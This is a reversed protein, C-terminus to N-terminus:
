SVLIYVVMGFLCDALKVLIDQCINFEQMWCISYGIMEEWTLKILSDSMDIDIWNRILFINTKKDCSNWSLILISKALTYFSLIVTSNYCMNDSKESSLPESMVAAGGGDAGGNNGAAGGVDLLRLLCGRTVVTWTSSWTSVWDPGLTQVNFCLM